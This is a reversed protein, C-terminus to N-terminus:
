DKERSYRRGHRAWLLWDLADNEGIGAPEVGGDDEFPQLRGIAGFDDGEGSIEALALLQLGRALLRLQEPDPRLVNEDLVQALFEHAVEHKRHEPGVREVLALIQEPGRDRPRQDGLPQDLDRALDAGVRDGVARGALAVVLHAVLKRGIRQLRVDPDDRGPAFPAEGRARRQDGVGLLVLDRDGLVLAALRRERGVGIKQM